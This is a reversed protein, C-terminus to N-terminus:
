RILVEGYYLLRQTAAVLPPCDAISFLLRCMSAMILLELFDDEERESTEGFVIYEHLSSLTDELVESETRVCVDGTDGLRRDMRGDEFCGTAVAVPPPM